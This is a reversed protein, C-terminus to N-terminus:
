RALDRYVIRSAGEITAIGYSMTSNDTTLVAITYDRGACRVRGISNVRWGRTPRPLWGNKVEVGTTPGASIGWRQDAAVHAMLGALYTRHTQWLPGPGRGASRVLVVEDQASSRTLGWHGAPDFRVDTLGVARDYAAVGSAGGVHNWLATAADNSSQRIMPDAQSREWADLFRGHRQAQWMVTELIAVKVISANDYLDTPHLSWSAGSAEDRVTLAMTSTRTAAYRQLEATLGAAGAPPASAWVPAGLSLTLLALGLVALRRPVTLM